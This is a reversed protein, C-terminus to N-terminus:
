SLSIRSNEVDEDPLESLEMFDYIVEGLSTLVLIQPLIDEWSSISDFERSILREMIYEKTFEIPFVNTSIQQVVGLKSLDVLEQLLAIERYEPSNLVESRLNLKCYQNDKIVAILALQRYTFREIINLLQNAEAVGIENSFAISVMVNSVYPIKKEEHERKCQLLIGEFIEEASSNYLGQNKFFYEDTRLTEGNDIRQAIKTIVTSASLAVRFEERFSLERNAMEELTTEIATGIIEAGFVVFHGGPLLKLADKIIAGGLKAGTGELISRIKLIDNGRM